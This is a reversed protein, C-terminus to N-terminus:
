EMQKCIYGQEKFICREDNKRSGKKIYIYM